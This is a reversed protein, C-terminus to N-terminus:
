LNSINEYSLDDSALDDIGLDTLTGVPPYKVCDRLKNGYSVSPGDIIRYAMKANFDLRLNPLFTKSIKTNLVDRKFKSGEMIYSEDDRTYSLSYILDKTGGNINM